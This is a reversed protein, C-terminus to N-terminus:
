GGFRVRSGCTVRVPMGDPTDPVRAPIRRAVRDPPMADFGILLYPAGTKLDYRAGFTTVHSWDDSILPAIIERLAREAMEVHQRSITARSDM